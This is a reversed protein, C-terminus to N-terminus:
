NDADGSPPKAFPYTRQAPALSVREPNPLKRSPEIYFLVSLAFRHLRHTKMTKM